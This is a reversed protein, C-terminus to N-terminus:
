VLPKYMLWFAEPLVVVLRSLRTLVVPVAVLKSVNFLALALLVTVAAMLM